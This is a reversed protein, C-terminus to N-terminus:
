LCQKKVGYKLELAEYDSYGCNCKTCNFCYGCTDVKLLGGCPCHVNRLNNDSDLHLNWQHFLNELYTKIM